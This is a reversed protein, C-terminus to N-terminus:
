WRLILASATDVLGIGYVHRSCYRHNPITVAADRLPYRPRKKHTRRRVQAPHAITQNVLKTPPQALYSPDRTHQSAPLGTTSIM